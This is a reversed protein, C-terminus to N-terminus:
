RKETEAQVQELILSKSIAHEAIFNIYIQAVDQQRIYPM